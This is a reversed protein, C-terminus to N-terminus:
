ATAPETATGDLHELVAVPFQSLVTAVPLLCGGGPEDTSRVAVTEGTFLNRFHTGRAQAPLLIETDSWIEPGVPPRDTNGILGAVLRPVAVLVKKQPTKRAFLCLNDKGAGRAELPIYRATAFFGAHDRRLSLCKWIVYLKISGDFRTEVLDRALDALAGDGGESRQRLREFIEQRRAYDVPRRNDPDVLSFDWLETGQYIDPVGPCTLKLVTQSLSNWIGLQSVRKAFSEFDAL